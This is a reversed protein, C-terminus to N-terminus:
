EERTRRGGAPFALADYIDSLKEDCLAVMVNDMTKGRWKVSRPMYAPLEREGAATACRIWRPRLGEFAGGVADSCVVVCRRGTVPETLTNGSDELATVTITGRDTTIHMPVIYPAEFSLRRIRTGWIFCLLGAGCFVALVAGGSPPTGQAGAGWWVAATIGATCASLAFFAGCPACLRRPSGGFALWVLAVGAATRGVLTYLPWLRVAYGGLAYLAGAAAAAALRAPRRALGTVYGTMILMLLDAAFNKALVADAYVVTM